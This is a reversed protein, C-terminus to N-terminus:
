PERRNCALRRAGSTHRKAAPGLYRSRVILLNLALSGFTRRQEFGQPLLFAGSRSTRSTTINSSVAINPFQDARTIGLNARAADVRVVADRLDYNSELAEGILKQLQKM